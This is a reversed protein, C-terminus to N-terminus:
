ADVIGRKFNASALAVVEPFFHKIIEWVTLVLYSSILFVIMITVAVILGSLIRDIM